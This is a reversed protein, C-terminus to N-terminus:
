NDQEQILMDLLYLSTESLKVKKGKVYVEIEEYDESTKDKRRIQYSDTSEKKQRKRLFGKVPKGRGDIIPV